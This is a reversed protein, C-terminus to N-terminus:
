KDLFTFIDFQYESSGMIKKRGYTCNLVKRHNFEGEAGHILTVPDAVLKKLGRPNAANFSDTDQKKIHFLRLDTDEGRLQIANSYCSTTDITCKRFFTLQESTLVAPCRADLPADRMEQAHAPIGYLNLACFASLFIM